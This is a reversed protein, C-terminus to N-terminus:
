SPMEKNKPEDDSYKYNKTKSSVQMKRKFTKNIREQASLTGKRSHFMASKAYSLLQVIFRSQENWEIYWTRSASLMFGM